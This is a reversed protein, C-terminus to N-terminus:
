RNDSNSIIKSLPRAKETLTYLHSNGSSSLIYLDLLSNRCYVGADCKNKSNQFGENKGSFSHLCRGEFKFNVSESLISFKVFIGNWLKIQQTTCKAEKISFEGFIRHWYQNFYLKIFILRFQWFCIFCDKGALYFDGKEFM